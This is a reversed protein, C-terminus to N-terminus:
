QKDFEVSLKRFIKGTKSLENSAKRAKKNASKKDEAKEVNELFDNCLDKMEQIVNQFDSM